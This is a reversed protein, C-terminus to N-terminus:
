FFRDFHIQDFPVKHEVMLMEQLARTMPPPGAFYFEYSTLANPLKKAIEEHVYGTAGAWRAVGPSSVVSCYVIRESFGPLATLMSSGCVDRPERAGYFFYLRRKELLGAASAGRVISIMPALGSGGAVCVLDRPSAPRLYGLGYPGDIGIELGPPPSDFLLGTAKGQPVRRIHFEWVGDNNPLNAMSYARSAAVGPLDLMAFQGALFEAPGDSRFCFSRMDHTIDVAGSFVAKNRKPLILPIYEQATAAKISVDGIARCQCALRRGRLKDREGLGPADPWLSEVEGSLLEFKCGGCGGSNCEYSMGIGSRLAARLITDGPLQEFRSGDKDNEIVPNAM